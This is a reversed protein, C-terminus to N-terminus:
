QCSYEFEIYGVDIPIDEYDVVFGDDTYSSVYIRPNVTETTSLPLMSYSVRASTVPFGTIVSISGTNSDNVYSVKGTLIYNDSKRM